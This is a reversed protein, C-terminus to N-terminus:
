RMDLEQALSLGGLGNSIIWVVKLTTWLAAVVLLSTVVRRSGLSQGAELSEGAETIM